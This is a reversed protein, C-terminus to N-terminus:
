RYISIYIYISIIIMYLLMIVYLLMGNMCINKELLMIM